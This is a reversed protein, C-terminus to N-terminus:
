FGDFNRDCPHKEKGVILMCASFDTGWMIPCQHNSVNGSQQLYPNCGHKNHLGVQWKDLIFSGDIFQLELLNGRTSHIIKWSKPYMPLNIKTGISILYTQNLDLFSDDISYTGNESVLNAIITSSGENGIKVDYSLNYIYSGFIPRQSSGGLGNISHGDVKLISM